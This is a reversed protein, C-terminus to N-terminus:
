VGGEVGMAKLGGVIRRVADQINEQFIEISTAAGLAQRWVPQSEQFELHSIGHLLPLFPVNSEHARVVEATVQNSVVSDPSIILVFAQSQSIAEGTQLLYAVGPLSDREYLWTTYGSTELERGVAMAISADEEVHSIFIDSM